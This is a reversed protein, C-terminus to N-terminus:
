SAEGREHGVGPLHRGRRSAKDRAAEYSENFVPASIANARGQEYVTRCVFLLDDTNGHLTMIRRTLLNRAFMRKMLPASVATPLRYALLEGRYRRLDVGRSGVIRSTERIARVARALLRTSGMLQEASGTTDEVDGYMGAVAGVGANIAMHLWIWELMDHPHELGIGCSDFLAEVRAHDPFRARDRRELMVHDFVCCTLREEAISGGAVPYGLVVDRGAMLRDLEEREGWFGCFLLVPGEIGGTRLDAMVEAVAGRPVSVVILDYGTRTRHRVDYRDRFLSGKPDTRGDLIEVKLSGVASRASSERVLHEVHHGAKQFLYGYTAGIVGLGVVLIKMPITCTEQATM